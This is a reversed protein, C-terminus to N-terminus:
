PNVPKVASNVEEGELFMEAFISVEPFPTFMLAAEVGVMAGHEVTPRLFFAGSGSVFAAFKFGQGMTELTALTAEDTTLISATGYALGVGGALISVGTLATFAMKKMCTSDCTWDQLNGGTNASLFAQAAVGPPVYGMPKGNQYVLVCQPGCAEHEEELVKRSMENNFLRQFAAALAADSFKGGTLSSVTGGVVASVMVRASINAASYYGVTNQNGGITGIAASSESGVFAGLFGDSFRGGGASSFAGGVIGEAVSKELLGTEGSGWPLDDGVYTFAFAEAGALAGSRM